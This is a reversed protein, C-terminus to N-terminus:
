TVALESSQDWLRTNESSLAETEGAFNAGYAERQERLAYTGDVEIAERHAAKFGLENKVKEVFSLSGVALAESWRSERATERRLAEEVWHRHAQQFHAVETFGCL